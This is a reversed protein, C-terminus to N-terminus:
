ILFGAKYIESILQKIKQNSLKSRIKGKIKTYQIGEFIIKRNPLIELNYVQCGDICAMRKMTLSLESKDKQLPQPANKVQTKLIGGTALICVFFVYFVKSIFM